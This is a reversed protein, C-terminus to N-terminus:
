SSLGQVKHVTCTWALTLPFQTHRIFPSASGKSVSIVTECKEIPVWPNQRALYSSRMAKLGALKNMLFEVYVKHASGQVFEIHRISRTQSNILCDM